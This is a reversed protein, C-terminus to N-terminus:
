VGQKRAPRASGRWRTPYELITGTQKITGVAELTARLISRQQEADFVAGFLNGQPFRMYIARPAGVM